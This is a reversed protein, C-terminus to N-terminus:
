AIIASSVLELHNNARRFARAFTAVFRPEIETANLVTVYLQTSPLFLLTCSNLYFSLQCWINFSLIDHM